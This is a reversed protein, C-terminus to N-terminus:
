VYSFQRNWERLYNSNEGKGEQKKYIGISRHRQKKPIKVNVKPM